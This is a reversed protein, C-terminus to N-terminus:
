LQPVMTAHWQDYGLIIFHSLSIAHAFGRQFRMRGGAEMIVNNVTDNPQHYGNYDSAREGGAFRFVPVGAQEFIEEDSNRTNTMRTETITRNTMLGGPKQCDYLIAEVFKMNAGRYQTLASAMGMNFGFFAYLKWNAHGPKNLGVMDYGFGHDFKKMNTAVFKDVYAQSGQRGIEEADFFLCSISKNTPVPALNKCIQMAAAVGAGDDYAGQVTDPVVDYHSIIGLYNDPQTLGRKIGEVARVTGSRGQLEHITTEYGAAVLEDRLFRGAMLNKQSGNVRRTYKRVFQQWWTVASAPDYMPPPFTAVTNCLQEMPTAGPAPTGATPPLSGGAGLGGMGGAGTGAAGGAGIGALPAGGTGTGAGAPGTGAGGTLTGAAGGPGVDSGGCGAAACWWLGWCSLAALYSACASIRSVSM